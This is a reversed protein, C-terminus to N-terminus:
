NEEKKLLIEQFKRDLEEVKKIIQFYEDLIELLEKNMDLSKLTNSTSKKKNIQIHPSVSDVNEMAVCKIQFTKLTYIYVLHYIASNSM